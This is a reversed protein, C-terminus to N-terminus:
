AKEVNADDVTHKELGKGQLKKAVNNHLYKDMDPVFCAAIVLLVTFPITALFVMRFAGAYAHKSAGGVAAIIKDTIGPVATFDGTALAAFLATISSPPLGAGIAAQPIYKASYATAKNTLITVYLSQAIAGGVSLKNTGNM